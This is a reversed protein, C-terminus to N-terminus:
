RKANEAAVRPGDTTVALIADARERASLNKASIYGLDRHILKRQLDFVLYQPMIHINFAKLVANEEGDYLVSLDSLGYAEVYRGVEEPKSEMSVVFTHVGNSRSTLNRWVAAEDSCKPCRRSTFCLITYGPAGAFPDVTRGQLDKLPSRPPREGLKMGPQDEMRGVAMQSGQRSQRALGVLVFVILFGVLVSLLLIWADKKKANMADHDSNDSPPRM